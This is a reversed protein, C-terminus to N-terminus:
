LEETEIRSCIHCTYDESQQIRYKVKSIYKGEIDDKIWTTQETTIIEIYDNGLEYSDISINIGELTFGVNVDGQFRLDELDLLESNPLLYLRLEEFDNKNVAEVYSKSYKSVFKKCREIDIEEGKLANQESTKRVEPKIRNTSLESALSNYVPIAIVFSIIISSLAAIVTRKGRLRRKAKKGRVCLTCYFLKYGLFMVTAMILAVVVYGLIAVEGM